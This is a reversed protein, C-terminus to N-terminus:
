IKATAVVTEKRTKSGHERSRAVPRSVPVILLSTPLRNLMREATSGILLRDIWGRGHSGIVVIEAGSAAAEEGIEEDARGQLVVRDYDPIHPLLRQILRHFEHRSWDEFAKQDLSVPVVAPFIAPEVVHMVRLQGEVLDAFEGATRLVPGAAPSLDAAVLIRRPLQGTGLAVLVPAGSTRVLQHATSGGLGRVLAGHHRAGVVILRADFERAVQDLVVAPRGVRAIMGRRVEEPIEAGLEQSLTRQVNGVLLDFVEPGNVVPEMGAPVWVDPVAHVLVCRVDAARALRWALAAARLSEASGDVGAIIPKTFTNM